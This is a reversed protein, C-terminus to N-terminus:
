SVKAQRNQLADLSWRYGPMTALLFAAFSDAFVSYDLPEKVGISYAMALAFMLMLVASGFAAQRTKYGVFLLLGMGTEL